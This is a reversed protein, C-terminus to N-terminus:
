DVLNAEAVWRCADGFIPRVYSAVVASRDDGDIDKTIRVDWPSRIMGIRHAKTLADFANIAIVHGRVYCGSNGDGERIEFRKM